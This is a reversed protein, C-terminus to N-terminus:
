KKSSMRLTGNQPLQDPYTWISLRNPGCNSFWVIFVDAYLETCIQLTYKYSTIGTRHLIVSKYGPSSTHFWRFQLDKLYGQGRDLNSLRSYFILLVFEQLLHMKWSPDLWNTEMGNAVWGCIKIATDLCKTYDPSFVSVIVYSGREKLLFSLMCPFANSLLSIHYVLRSTACIYNGMCNCFCIRWYVIRSASYM